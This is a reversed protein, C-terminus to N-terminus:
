IGRFEGKIMHTHTHVCLNHTLSLIWTYGKTGFGFVTTRWSSAKLGAAERDGSIMDSTPIQKLLSRLHNEHLNFRFFVTSFDNLFEIVPKGALALIFM